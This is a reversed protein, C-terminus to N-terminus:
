VCFRGRRLDPIVFSFLFLGLTNPSSPRGPSSISTSNMMACAACMSVVVVHRRGLDNILLTGGPLHSSCPELPMQFSGLSFVYASRADVITISAVWRKTNLTRCLSTLRSSIRLLRGAAIQQLIHESSLMVKYSPALEEPSLAAATTAAPPQTDAPQKEEAFTGTM